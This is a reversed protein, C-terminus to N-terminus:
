LHWLLFVCTCGQVWTWSDLLNAEARRICALFDNDPGVEVGFLFKREGTEEPVISADECPARGVHGTGGLLQSLVCKFDVVGCSRDLL